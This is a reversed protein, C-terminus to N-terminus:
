FTVNHVENTSMVENVAYWVCEVVIWACSLTTNRTYKNKALRYM